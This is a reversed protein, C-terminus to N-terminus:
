AFTDVLGLGARAPMVSVSSAEAAQASHGSSQHAIQQQQQMFDQAMKDRQNINTQGLNIGAEKMMERLNDMGDQLAQRVEQRDSFFATDTKDNHVHIVIQLPGMEPPNLTLTASQQAAGVMWMVRQGIAQSWGEKGPPMLILSNSALNTAATQAASTPQNHLMSAVPERTASTKNLSEPLLDDFNTSDYKTGNFKDTQTRQNEMAVTLKDLGTQAFTTSDSAEDALPVEKGQAPSLRSASSDTKLSSANILAPDTSVDEADKAATQQLQALMDLSAPILAGDVADTADETELASENPSPRAADQPSTEPHTMKGSLGKIKRQMFDVATADEDVMSKNEAAENKQTEQQNQTAQQRTESKQHLQHTLKQQFSGAESPQGTFNNSKSTGQVHAKPATNSMNLLPLNQM